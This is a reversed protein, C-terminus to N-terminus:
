SAIPEFDLAVCPEDGVVWADHGPGVEFAEGPGVTVERGDAGRVVM